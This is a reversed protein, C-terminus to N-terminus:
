SQFNGGATPPHNGWIQLACPFLCPGLYSLFHSFSSPFPKPSLLCLSFPYLSYSCPCSALFLLRPFPPFPCPSFPFLFLFLFCPCPSPTLPYLVLTLLCPVFYLPFCPLSSLPCPVPLTALCLTSTVLPLYVFPSLYQYAFPLLFNFLPFAWPVFAHLSSCPVPPLPLLVLPLACYYRSVNFWNWAQLM